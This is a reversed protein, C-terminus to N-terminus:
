ALKDVPYEDFNGAPVYEPPAALPAGGRGGFQKLPSPPTGLRGGQIRGQQFKQCIELPYILKFVTRKM